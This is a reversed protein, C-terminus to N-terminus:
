ILRKFGSVAPKGQLRSKLDGAKRAAAIEAFAQDVAALYATVHADTHALMAYFNSSALFGKKLMSQVFYAKAEPTDPGELDVHSMPFIGGVDAKIGHAALSVKWGEQVRKGLEVLRPGANLRKHKRITALAAAPGVRDTWMTSSVFTKQVADMVPGKGIIAAVPYGNGIAKSFVAIDPVMGYLLHAGGSNMRFGASIEDIVLV